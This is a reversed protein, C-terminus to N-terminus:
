KAWGCREEGREGTQAYLNEGLFPFGGGYAAVGRFRM